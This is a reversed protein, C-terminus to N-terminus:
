GFWRDRDSSAAVMTHTVLVGERSAVQLRASYATHSEYLEAGNDAAWQKVYTKREDHTEGPAITVANFMIPTPLAGAVVMTLWAQVAAIMGTEDNRLTGM